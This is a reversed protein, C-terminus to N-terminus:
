FFQGAEAPLEFGFAVTSLVKALIADPKAGDNPKGSLSQREGPEAAEATDMNEDQKDAM